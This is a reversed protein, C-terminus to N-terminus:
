EKSTDTDGLTWGKKSRILGNMSKSAAAAAAEDEFVKAKAESYTLHEADMLELVKVVQAPDLQKPPPAAKEPVEGRSRIFEDMQSDNLEGEKVEGKGLHSRIYDNLEGKTKPQKM